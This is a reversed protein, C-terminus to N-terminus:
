IRYVNICPKEIPVSYFPLKQFLRKTKKEDGCSM